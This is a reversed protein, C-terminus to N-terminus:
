TGENGMHPNQSRLTGYEIAVNLEYGILLAISNFYIMLMIGMITGISGYLKNYSGFNEIYFAFAVTVGIMSITSLLAGPSFFKMNQKPGYYYIYAISFYIFLITIAWRAINLWFLEDQNFHLLLNFVYHVIYEGFITFVIAIFLFSTLVLTLIISTIQQSLWSPMNKNERHFSMSFATLMSNIGSTAFYLALIFGISVLSSHKTAIVDFLTEKLFSHMINPSAFLLESKLQDQLGDIPIYPILSFIFIISPFIALFLNFAMAAARTTVFGGSIGQIFFKALTYLKLNYLFSIKAYLIKNIWSFTRFYKEIRRM